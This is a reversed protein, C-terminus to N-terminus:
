ETQKISKQTRSRRSLPILVVAGVAALPLVVVAVEVIGEVVNVFLNSITGLFSTIGSQSPAAVVHVTTNKMTVTGNQDTASVTVKYNGSGYFTHVLIQGQYASGDGFNYNVLYPQAGGKVIANFTVSLPATGNTPIASLTMTLPAKAASKSVTVTITSYDILTKTQLIQSQAENIQQDVGQLQAEIALTSNVTTSKDLLRLLAGEETRLSSLTANLDTYQVKADNSNSILSTVNGMAKIQTLVSNYASAPVRIVVYASDRYTSQYAVYGGVSYALAVVGSATQPPTAATISVDSSFEVFSGTGLSVNTSPAGGTLSWGTGKVDTTGSSSTTTSMMTVTQIVQTYGSSFNASGANQAFFSGTVGETAGYPSLPYAHASPSFGGSAGNQGFVDGSLLAVAFGGVVIIAGLLVVVNRTTVGEPLDM